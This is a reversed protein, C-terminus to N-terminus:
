DTEMRTIRNDLEAIKALLESHNRAMEARLTEGLGDIRAIMETRLDDLRKHLDNFRSNFDGFRGNLDNLRQNSLLIGVLIVITPVALAGYFQVNTM